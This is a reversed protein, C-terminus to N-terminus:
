APTPSSLVAASDLPVVSVAVLLQHKSGGLLVGRLPAVDGYDRGWGITVHRQDVIVDNTPDLDAWGSGPVYVSLWAHSADAGILRPQGPPPDTLLYGSVYRAALGLSRLCAIQLHAFDQCVGRREALVRVVPRSLSTAAPDFTFEGHIRHMLDVAGDLMERGPPFSARAFDETLSIGAVQPSPGLYQVVDGPIEPSPDLLADRAAEWSIGGAPPEGHRPQIDVLSHATVSLEDHPALLQFQHRANGFYDIRRLVRAPAPDVVLEFSRVSQFPLARPELCAVHQSTSVRTEYRYRTRHEVRYAAIM